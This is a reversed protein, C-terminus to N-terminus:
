EVGTVNMGRDNNNFNDVRVLEIKNSFLWKIKQWITAKQSLQIRFQCIRTGKEITTNDLPSAVYQWEDNNGCYCNDIIGLGNPIFMKFKKPGGSRSAIIAEYGDPLQMAVGLPIYVVPLVADRYKIGDKSYQTGVQAANLDVDIAARLDIWDGNKSITPMCGETLVRVKIKTAMYKNKLTKLKNM